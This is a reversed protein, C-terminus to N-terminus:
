VGGSKQITEYAKSIQQTKEKALNMAAESLGKAALKDPHHQNMLRRYAKKVEAQSANPSLGLAKYAEALNSAQRARPTYTKQQYFYHQALLQIKLREYQFRSIALQSAIHWLLEEETSSLEGDAVAAQLQITLFRLILGTNQQCEQYFQDLVHDLQFNVKKGQQFLNIATTRLEANLNMDGMLLEAYAIAEPRVRGDAKAVHGMVSFTAVFFAMQTKSTETANIDLDIHLNIKDGFQYAISAGLIAGLPGGFVFGVAGGVLSRLLSM